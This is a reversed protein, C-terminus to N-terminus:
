VAAKSTRELEQLCCYSRHSTSGPPFTITNMTPAGAAEVALLVAGVCSLVM